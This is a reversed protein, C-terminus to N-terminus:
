WGGYGWVEPRVTQPRRVSAVRSRQLSNRDLRVLLRAADIALTDRRKHAQEVRKGRVQGADAMTQYNLMASSFHLGVVTRPCPRHRRESPFISQNCGVRRSFRHGTCLRTRHERADERGEVQGLEGELWTHSHFHLRVSVWSSTSSPETAPSEIRRERFFFSASRM